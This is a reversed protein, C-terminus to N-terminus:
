NAVLRQRREEEIQINRVNRVQSANRTHQGVNQRRM